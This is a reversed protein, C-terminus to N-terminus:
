LEGDELKFAGAPDGAVIKLKHSSVDGHDDPDTIVIKEGGGLSLEAASNEKVTISKSEVTPDENVNVVTLTVKATDKLDGTDTCQVTLTFTKRASEYDIM